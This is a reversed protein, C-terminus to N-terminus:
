LGGEKLEAYCGDAEDDLRGDSNAKIWNWLSELHEQPCTEMVRYVDSKRLTAVSDASIKIHDAPNFRSMNAGKQKCAAPNPQPQQPKPTESSM